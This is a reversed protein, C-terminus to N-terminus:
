SIDGFFCEGAFSFGITPYEPSNLHLNREHEHLLRAFFVGKAKPVFILFNDYGLELSFFIYTFMDQSHAQCGRYQDAACCRGSVGSPGSCLSIGCWVSHRAISLQERGKSWKNATCSTYM